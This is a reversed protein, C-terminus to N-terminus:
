VTSIASGLMNFAVKLNVYCSPFTAAMCSQSLMVLRPEEPALGLFGTKTTILKRVNLAIAAIKVNSTHKATIGYPLHEWGLDEVGAKHFHRAHHKHMSPFLDKLLYGFIQFNANTQRFRDFMEWPGSSMADSFVTDGIGSVWLQDLLEGAADAQNWEFWYIEHLSGDKPANPHAQILTRSLAQALEFRGHYRVSGARIISVKAESRKSKKYLISEVASLSTCEVTGVMM